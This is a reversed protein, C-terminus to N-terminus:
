EQWDEYEHYRVNKKRPRRVRKEVIYDDFRDQRKRDMKKRRVDKKTNSDPYYIQEGKGNTNEESNVGQMEEVNQYMITSNRTGAYEMILGYDKKDITLKDPTKSRNMTADLEDLLQYIDLLVIPKGEPVDVYDDPNFSFDFPAKQPGIYKTITERPTDEPLKYELAELATALRTHYNTLIALLLTRTLSTDM